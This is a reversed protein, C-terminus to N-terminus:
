SSRIKQAIQMMSEHGNAPHTTGRQFDTLENWRSAINEASLAPKKLYVGNSREWRLKGFWGGATEFLSGTEQASAHSLYVVVPAICSAEFHEVGSIVGESMR